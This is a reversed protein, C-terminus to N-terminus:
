INKLKHHKIYIDLLTLVLAMKVIFESCPPIFEFGRRKELALRSAM